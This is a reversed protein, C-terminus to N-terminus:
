QKKLVFQRSFARALADHAAQRLPWDALAIRLATITTQLEAYLTNGELRYTLRESGYPLKIELPQLEGQLVYGAPFQIQASLTNIGVGSSIEMPERRVADDDDLWTM